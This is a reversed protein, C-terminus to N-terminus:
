TCSLFNLSQRFDSENYHSPNLVLERLHDFGLRFLSKARRGHKKLMIPKIQHLVLGTKIAWCLALTLLALLKRLRKPDTFHTSELCFGRTKFIGYLTEISWRLAYDEILKEEGTPAIVVLLEGDDLRMGEVAVSQGWVRCVGKLRQSQGVQLHAFVVQSSLQKGNREIKDTARIRIRFPLLPSLLLYRIWAQGIFERDACLCRIQADPFIKLLQEIFRMREDSNSNGKKDLMWWLLPFAVGQHVVGVSLINHCHSGFEWTTRDISLVWPQPISMWSIVLKAIVSYDLEFGRFFRQLRKYKSAAQAKGEFGLALESLNVTKVKVLALLFLTLFSLRAGHWNLHPQLAQKLESYQSM